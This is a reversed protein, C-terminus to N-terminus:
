VLFGHSFLAIQGLDADDSEGDHSGVECAVECAIAVGDRDIVAARFFGMVKHGVVAGFAVENGGFGDSIEHCGEFFGAAGDDHDLCPVGGVSDNVLEGVGHVVTVDDDVAAIGQVGVGDSAFLFYGIAAEVENAGADGAALLAGEVPWGDHGAAWFFGPFGEPGEEFGDGGVDVTDGADGVDAGVTGAVEDFHYVVADFVGVHLNDPLGILEEAIAGAHGGGFDGLNEAGPIGAVKVGVEDADRGFYEGLHVGFSAFGEDVENDVGGALFASAAPGDFGGEIKPNGDGADAFGDEGAGEGPGRVLALGGDTVQGGTGEGGKSLEADVSVGEDFVDAAGEVCGFKHGVGLPEVFDGGAGGVM